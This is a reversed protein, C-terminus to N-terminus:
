ATKRGPGILAIAAAVVLGSITVLFALPGIPWLLAHTLKTTVPGDTRWVGILVGLLYISLLVRVTRESYHLICFASNLFCGASFGVVCRARDAEANQIRLESNRTINCSNLGSIRIAPGTM